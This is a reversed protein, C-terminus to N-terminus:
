GPLPVRLDNFVVNASLTQTGATSSRVLASFRGLADGGAPQTIVANADDSDITVRAGPPFSLSEYDLTVRVEATSHGDSLIAGPRVEIEARAAGQWSSRNLCSALALTSLVTCYVVFRQM